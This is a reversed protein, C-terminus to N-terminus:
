ATHKDAKKLRIAFCAEALHMMYSMDDEHLVNLLPRRQILYDLPLNDANLTQLTMMRYTILQCRPGTLTNIPLSTM